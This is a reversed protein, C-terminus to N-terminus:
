IKIKPSKKLKEMLQSMMLNSTILIKLSKNKQQFKSKQSNMTLINM